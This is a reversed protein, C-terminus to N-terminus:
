CAMPGGWVGDDIECNGKLIWFYGSMGWTSGWSNAIIWYPESGSIGWGIGKLAHYGVLGGSVHKYVGSKYNFFDEYVAMSFELPGNNMIETAIGSEGSFQQYTKAKHKVSSWNESDTCKNPCPPAVGSGSQYQFCSQTVIGTSVAYAWAANLYGGDCGYNTSDCSVADQAALIVDTGCQVCWRDSMSEALGFSWCSGCQGQNRIAYDCKPWKTRSDFSTPLEVEEDLTYVLETPVKLPVRLNVFNQYDEFTWGEFMEYETAKWGFNGNNIYDVIEKNALAFAILCVFLLKYM